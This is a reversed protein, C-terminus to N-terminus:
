SLLRMRCETYLTLIFVYLQQVLVIFLFILFFIIAMAVLSALLNLLTGWFKYNHITMAGYFMLVVFWINCCVGVISVFTFESSIMFRSLFTSLLNFAILPTLNYCTMVYIDVMRGEGNLLTCLAWNAIVFLLVMLGSTCLVVLINFDKIRLTSYIFGTAVEQIIASVTFAILLLSAYIVSGNKKYKLDEMTEVPHTIMLFPNKRGALMKDYFAKLFIYINSWLKQITM